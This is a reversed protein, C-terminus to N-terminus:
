CKNERKERKDKKGNSHKTLSLLKGSTENKLTGNDIKFTMSVNKRWLRKCCKKRRTRRLTAMQKAEKEWLNKEDNHRKFSECWSKLQDSNM